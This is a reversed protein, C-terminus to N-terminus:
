IVAAAAGVHLAHRRFGEANVDSLADLHRDSGLVLVSPGAGSLTAAYGESRLSKMLTYSEPMLEARYDQHLKDATAAWLLGLDDQVAHVLLAARSANDIADARPVRDPLISRARATSVPTEPVFMMVRLRPHVRLMVHAQNEYQGWALTLGGYMCATANDAHGEFDVAMLSLRRRDPEQVPHALKWAALAGGVVAAASSGLGRGHPISNYATLKLGPVSADLEELGRLVANLILNSEDTPVVDASEGEVEVEFGSETVEVTIEDTWDLAIGLSDFGPGLNASTAPMRVKATTGVNLRPM